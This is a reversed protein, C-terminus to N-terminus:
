QLCGFVRLEIGYIWMNKYKTTNGDGCGAARKRPKGFGEWRRQCARPAQRFRGLPTSVSEPNASVKGVANARERSKGFGEWRRQSRRYISKDTYDLLPKRKPLPHPRHKKRKM